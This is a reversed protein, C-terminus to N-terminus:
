GLLLALRIGKLWRQGIREALALLDQASGAARAWGASYGRVRCTWRGADRDIISLIAPAREPIKGRKGPAVARGTWDLIQLYDATTLSLRSKSIGLLPQLPAALAHELRAAKIREHVSTRSSTELRDTIGARIPNLDVYAM